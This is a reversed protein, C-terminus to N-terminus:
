NGRETGNQARKACASEGGTAVTFIRTRAVTSTKKRRRAQATGATEQFGICPARNLRHAIDDIRNRRLIDFYINNRGSRTEEKGKGRM